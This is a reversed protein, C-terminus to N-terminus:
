YSNQYLYVYSGILTIIGGSIPAYSFTFLKDQMDSDLGFVNYHALGQAIIGVAVLIAGALVGGNKVSITAKDNSMAGIDSPRIANAALVPVAERAQGANGATNGYPNGASTYNPAAPVPQSQAPTGFSVPSAGAPYAGIAPVAGLPPLSSSATPQNGGQALYNSHPSMGAQRFGNRSWYAALEQNLPQRNIVALRTTVDFTVTEHEYLPTRTAGPSAASAVVQATGSLTSVQLQPQTNASGPIVAFDLALDGRSFEVAANGAQITVTGNGGSNVIRMRGYLFTLVASRKASGLDNFTVSTNEALKVIAGSPDLQVEVYNNPGTQIVDANQLALGNAPINGTQYTQQRGNNAVVFSDAGSSNVSGSFRSTGLNQAYLGTAAGVCLLLIISNCNRLM